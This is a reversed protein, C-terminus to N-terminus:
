KMKIRSAAIGCRKKIRRARAADFGFKQLSGHEIKQHKGEAKTQETQGDAVGIGAFPNSSRAM